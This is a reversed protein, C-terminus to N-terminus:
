VLCSNEGTKVRKPPPPSIVKVLRKPKVESEITLPIPDILKNYQKSTSSQRLVLILAFVM